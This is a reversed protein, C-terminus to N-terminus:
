KKARKKAYYDQLMRNALNQRDIRLKEHSRFRPINAKLEKLDKELAPLLEVEITRRMNDVDPQFLPASQGQTPQPHDLELSELELRLRVEFSYGTYGDDPLRPLLPHSKVFLRQRRNGRTEEPKVEVFANLLRSLVSSNCKQVKEIPFWPRVKRWFDAVDGPAPPPGPPMIGRGRIAPNSFRSSWHEVREPVELNAPIERTSFIQELERDDPLPAFFPEVRTWVSNPNSSM